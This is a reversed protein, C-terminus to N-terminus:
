RQDSCFKKDRWLCVDAFHLKNPIKLQERLKFSACSVEPM